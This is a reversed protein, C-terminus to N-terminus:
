DITIYFGAQTDTTSLLCIAKYLDEEKLKYGHSSNEGRILSKYEKDALFAEKFEDSPTYLDTFFSSAKLNKVAKNMETLENNIRVLADEKPETFEIGIYYEVEIINGYKDTRVTVFSKHSDDLFARVAGNEKGDLIVKVEGPFEQQIEKALIDINTETAETIKNEIATSNMNMVVMLGTFILLPIILITLIQKGIGRKLTMGALCAVDDAHKQISGTLMGLSALAMAGGVVSGAESAGDLGTNDLVKGMATTALGGIALNGAIKSNAEVDATDINQLKMLITAWEPSSVAMRASFTYKGLLFGYILIPAIIFICPILVSDFNMPILFGFVAALPLLFMGIIAVWPLKTYTFVKQVLAKEEATLIRTSPMPLSEILKKNNFMKRSPIAILAVIITLFVLFGLIFLLGSKIDDRFLPLIITPMLIAFFLWGSFMNASFEETTEAGNSLSMGMSKFLFILLIVGPVILLYTFINQASILSNILDAPLILFALAYAIYGLALLLTKTKSGGNEYHKNAQNIFAKLGKM